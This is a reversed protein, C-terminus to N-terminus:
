SQGDTPRRNWAEIAEEPTNFFQGMQITGCHNCWVQYKGCNDLEAEGGCFPCPKLKNEKCEACNADVINCKKKKCFAGYERPATDGYDYHICERNIYM